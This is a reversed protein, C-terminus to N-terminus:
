NKIPKSIGMWNGHETYGQRNNLPVENLYLFAAHEINQENELAAPNILMNIAWPFFDNVLKPRRVM